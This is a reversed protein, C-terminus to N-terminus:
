SFGSWGGGPHVALHPGQHRVRPAQLVAAGVAEKCGRGGTDPIDGGTVEGVSDDDSPHTPRIAAPRADADMIQLGIALNRALEIETAM